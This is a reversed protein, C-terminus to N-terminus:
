LNAVAATIAVSSALQAVTLLNKWFLSAGFVKQPVVVVDGPDLRASLVKGGGSHRGIVSGNVRIIFIEGRNATASTGGAHQLYWGATKDPIFTLATANYVQGTVLVFGPRKPITLVDGRRLEIDAPTNEWSTIDASLHVVLRGSPPQSRLRSVVQEQQAQILQLTQGSDGPGLNPSLRAAASSTEIQRILEERSKQELERVQERVLIAGAPYATARFGGARRLISSLREGERFGYNGPFAVQGEITVSEGIESWGTIQHITLIDGPKLLVDSASDTGNVAAGIHVSTLSGVVKNGDAVTYSTLDAKELLADNKFGGAMRVLQAVTMGKSLPFSGPRLVEGHIEVKPADVEYRGFIRVTDFPQLDINGNGILVDPVNFALTEAHLDPPVLRIIEGRAAPEPLMDQYTRLVDSLRMGERYPQRGPRVVHGELYVARESYPLIPAVRIRDGDKVQFAAIADHDAQSAGGKTLDLTVTERLRNADIREVTIHSLSAAVTFGGADEAVSALTSEGSKLEYIAPRKVAGSIAIQPGAPPVLLTDGSEFRVSQNRLGHLLFDYLDVEEILQKGRLHRLTRLSGAATPGGAAYLASLPTALSSIDFGGPRQVDGVVYVRVSRLQSVTVAIQADRYQQKLTGEILSQVRGLALGAVDISGGEPLLIRGDRDVMRTMTQTIGGWLTITLTDGPGVIYDPGIPVDLPTDRGTVGRSLATTAANVFVESGFRKLPASPEPIQTYLDRMSQLNYPAPSRLVKPVDTSANSVQDRRKLTPKSSSPPPTGTLLSTNAGDLSPAGTGAAIRGQLDSNPPQSGSLTGTSQMSSLGGATEVDEISSAQGQLTDDSIYGRARLFTTVRARVDPNTVIQNYLMEDTISDPQIQVGQQQMQDAVLSKLEVVVEPREQLIAIIQSAPLTTTTSGLDFSTGTSGASQTSSTAGSGRNGDSSPFSPTDQQSPSGPTVATQARAHSGLLILVLGLLVGLLKGQSSRDAAALGNCRRLQILQATPSVFTM